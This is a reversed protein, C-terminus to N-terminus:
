LEALVTEMLANIDVDTVVHSLQAPDGLEEGLVVDLRQFFRRFRDLKIVLLVLGGNIFLPQSVWRTRGGWARPSTCMINAIRVLDTDHSLGLYISM